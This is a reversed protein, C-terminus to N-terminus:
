FRKLKLCQVETYNQYTHTKLSSVEITHTKLSSVEITHTKWSQPRFDQLTKCSSIRFDQLIKNDSIRNDWRIQQQTKWNSVRFDWYECSTSFKLASSSSCRFCCSPLTFAIWSRCLSSSSSCSSCCCLCTLYQYRYGPYGRGHTGKAISLTGECSACLSPSSSSSSSECIGSGSEFGSMPLFCQAALVLVKSWEATLTPVLM